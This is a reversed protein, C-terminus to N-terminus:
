AVAARTTFRCALGEPLYTLQVKGGLERALGREILSTGFGKHTPARVQPGGTERWEFFYRQDCQDPELGWRIEVLGEATSLAGYKFANTCLEHVALTISVANSACIEVDPGSIRFRDKPGGCGSLAADIIARLPARRWNGVILLNQAESLAQLRGTFAGYADEVNEAQRFTQQAIAQVVSLINKVRHRLENVLLHQRDQRRKREFVRGIQEGLARVTLLLDPDPRTVDKAFFELIAITRGEYRLPFGFAGRYGLGQRVFNEDDKTDTIWLPEGSQQIRGPLGIGPMFTIGETAARLDAAADQELEVWVPTSILAEEDNEPVIFVHGVPWGTITCIATLARELAAELSDAEAAMAAIEFMMRTELAQRKLRDEAKRRESIDRLFGIFSDQVPGSARTISLEVPIERGDKCLATIEIRRNLVRAEGGDNLRRLGQEHAHRHQPPVIVEALMQGVAEEASWGFMHEACGNWAVIRGDQAMVIVADLVTELIPSLAPHLDPSIGAVM